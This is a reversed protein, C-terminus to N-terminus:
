AFIRIMLFDNTFLFTFRNVTISAAILNGTNVFNVGTSITLNGLNITQTPSNTFNFGYNFNLNSTNSFTGNNIITWNGNYSPSSSPNYIVGTGICLTHGNFTNLRGTFASTGTTCVVQEPSLNHTASNPVTISYTCGTCHSQVSNGTFLTLLILVVLKHNISKMNNLKQCIM